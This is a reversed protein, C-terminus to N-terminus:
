DRARKMRSSWRRRERRFCTRGRPCSLSSGTSSASATRSDHGEPALAPDRVCALPSRVLRISYDAPRLCSLFPLFTTQHLLLVPTPIPLPPSFVYSPTTHGLHITSAPPTFYALILYSLLYQFRSVSKTRRRQCHFFLDLEFLSM